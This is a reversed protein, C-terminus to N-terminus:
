EAKQVRPVRGTLGNKGGGSKIRHKLGELALPLLGPLRRKGLEWFSLAMHHVGLLQAMEKQTLGAEKRWVRLSQKDM